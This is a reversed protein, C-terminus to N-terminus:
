CLLPASYSSEAPWRSVLCDIIQAYFAKTMGVKPEIGFIATCPTRKIGARCSVNKM